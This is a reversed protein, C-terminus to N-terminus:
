GALLKDLMGRLRVGEEPTLDDISLKNPGFNAKLFAVLELGGLGAKNAGAMLDNVETTPMREGTDAAPQAAQPEPEKESQTLESLSLRTGPRPADPIGDLLVGTTQSIGVDAHEDLAVATQLEVSAPLLKCLQRLVTKKAMAEYDTFWPGSTEAKSRKRIGEIQRLWMVEFQHGGDKLEAVAYAAIIPGPSEDWSPTHELVPHLGKSFKFTDKECVVDAAITKIEGSRRALQLLGKYGPILQCEKQGTKKNNFPVLYAHGLVGDPELGLQSSQVISGILSMQSCELLAPTKQVATMVVRIMREATLHRPLAASIQDKMKALLNRLENSKQQMPTLNTAPPRSATQGNPQPALATM